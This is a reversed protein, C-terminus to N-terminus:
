GGRERAAAPVATAAVTAFPGASGARGALARLAMRVRAPGHPSGIALAMRPVPLGALDVNREAEGPLRPCDQEPLLDVVLRVPASHRHRMRVIGIGRVEIMGALAAPPSAIALGGTTALVVRDDAVLVTDGRADDILALALTSKGSGPTGRILVGRGGVAVVTAHVTAPAGGESM